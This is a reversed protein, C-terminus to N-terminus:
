ENKNKNKLNAWRRDVKNQIQKIIEEKNEAQFIHRFRKQSQLFETIALREKPEYTIKYNGEEIEYLPWFNTETGMRAIEITEATPYGWLPVCPSFVLMFKAGKIKLAKRAKAEFDPLFGVNATASYPINHGEIIKMIDKRDDEKGLTKVGAPTTETDAAFPTSGSRQGGTNMYAGNDYCVFLFDHDRELAGSLAQFGIDYTGGDGAFVVIKIDKEKIKGRKLLAKKAAAIGAAVAAANGFVSHIYPVKWATNPYITTTVEMCGTANVVIIPDDTAALVTRAVLGIPCGACTTNATFKAQRDEM